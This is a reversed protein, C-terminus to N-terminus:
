SSLKKFAAELEDWVSEIGSKLIEWKDKGAVRVEDLKARAAKHKAMLADIRDRQQEKADAGADNARAVFEDLKATWSELQAEMKGITSKMTEM